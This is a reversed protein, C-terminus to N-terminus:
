SASTPRCAVVFMGLDRCQAELLACDDAALLQLCWAVHVDAAAVLGEPLGVTLQSDFNRSRFCRQRSGWLPHGFGCGLLVLVMYLMVYVVLM